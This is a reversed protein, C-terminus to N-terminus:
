GRAPSAAAASVAGVGDIEKLLTDISAKRGASFARAWREAGLRVRADREIGAILRHVYNDVLAAGTRDAVAARAGLIRAAWAAEGLQIAAAALPVLAYVFAFQDRLARIRVLSARTAAIAAAPDGRRVALSARLYGALLLYWPGSGELSAVAEDLLREGAADDGQEFAIWALGTLSNGIVWRLDVAPFSAISRQFWHRAEDTREAIHEVHGLIWYAKAAAVPDSEGAIDLVRRLDARAPDLAGQIYRMAAAAIRVAAEAAPPLSPMALIREYWRLGEVTQGRIVWFWMLADAISAAETPRRRDILGGMAERYNELDDGARDLWEAQQPGVLGSSARSAEDACYRALREFAQESEGEAALQFAAFARITELMRFRPRNALRSEERVLLSKGVLAAVADLAADIGAGADAIVAAAAELSFADPLIGLRRFVRRLGDDLLHYSWAVTAEITQQREPLDRRGASSMLVGDVLRELLGEANLTKLWPAALELALPLADLRRCIETVTPGNAATLRFDPQVDRVREVFLRVAPTLALDALSTADTHPELALPEVPYEREGRVRLPERSTVLLRLAPLATLLEAILPAADLVQEFNDLVLLMPAHGWAKRARRALEAAGVDALGLVKAIASGVLAADRVAALPVFQVRSPTEAAVVRALELALRTKGVGGPGTLTTLRVAPDALWERLTAVDRERGLLPTPALPLAAGSLEHAVTTPAPVRATALFADRAVGALDLAAALARVTDMHPRLRRGRELASVAHVSLGAITALEEQTFGASERLSRLREGFSGAPDPTM